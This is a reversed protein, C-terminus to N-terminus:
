YWRSFSHRKNKDALPAVKEHLKMTKLKKINRDSESFTLSQAYNQELLEM